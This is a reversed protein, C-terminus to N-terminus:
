KKRSVQLKSLVSKLQDKGHLAMFHRPVDYTVGEFKVQVFPGRIKNIRRVMKRQAEDTYHLLRGCLCKEAEKGM